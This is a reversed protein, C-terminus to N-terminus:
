RLALVSSAQLAGLAERLRCEQLSVEWGCAPCGPFRDPQRLWHQQAAFFLDRLCHFGDAFDLPVRSLKNSGCCKM